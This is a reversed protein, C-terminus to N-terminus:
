DADNVAALYSLWLVVGVLAALFAMQAAWVM